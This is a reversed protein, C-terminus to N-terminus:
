QENSKFTRYCYIVGGNKASVESNTAAAMCYCILFVSTALLLLILFFINHVLIMEKVSLVYILICSNFMAVVVVQGMYVKWIKDAQSVLESLKLHKRRLTEAQDLITSHSGSCSSGNMMASALQSRVHTFEKTLVYNIVIFLVLKTNYGIMSPLFFIGHLIISINELGHAQTFAPAFILTGQKFVPVFPPLVVGSVLALVFSINYGLIYVHIWRKM